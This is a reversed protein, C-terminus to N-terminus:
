PRSWTHPTTVMLGGCIRRIRSSWAPSQLDILCRSSLRLARCNAGTRLLTAASPVLGPIILGPADLWPRIPTQVGWQATRSAPSMVTTRALRPAASRGPPVVIRSSRGITGDHGASGGLSESTRHKTLGVRRRAVIQGRGASDDWDRFSQQASGAVSAKRPCRTRTRRGIMQGERNRTFPAVIGARRAARQCHAVPPSAPSPPPQLM